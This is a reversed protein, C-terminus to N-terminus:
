VRVRRVLPPLDAEAEEARHLGHGGARAAQVARVALDLARDRSGSM